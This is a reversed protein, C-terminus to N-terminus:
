MSALTFRSTPLHSKLVDVVNDFQGPTLDDQAMSMYEELEARAIKYAKLIDMLGDVWIDAAADRIRLQEAFECAGDDDTASTFDEDDNDTSLDCENHFDANHATLFEAGYKATIM